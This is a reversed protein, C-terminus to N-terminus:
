TKRKIKHRETVEATKHNSGKTGRSPNRQIGPLSRVCNTCTEDVSSARDKSNKLEGPWRHDEILHIHEM